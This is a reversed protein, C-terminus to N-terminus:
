RVRAESHRRVLKYPSIRDRFYAPGRAAVEGLPGPATPDVLVVGAMDQPHLKTYCPATGLLSAILFDRYGAIKLRSTSPKSFREVTHSTAM